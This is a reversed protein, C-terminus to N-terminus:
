QFFWYHFAAYRGSLTLRTRRATLLQGPIRLVQEDWGPSPRFTWRIAPHDDVRVLITAEPIEITVRERSAPWLISATVPSATRLVVTLDAGPETTIRFREEGLIARGADILADGTDVTPAERRVMGWLDQHGLKSTFSYEHDAEDRTDCVNLRDVERLGAVAQHASRLQHNPGILPRRLRFIFLPDGPLDSHYIPEGDVLAAHLTPAAAQQSASTILYAPQESEPLRRLTEILNAEREAMRSGFFAPSTVGHLNLARHGTLYEIGTATNAMLVGPPLNKVIWSAAHVDRHFLYGAADGYAAAMRSTSLLGLALWLGAGVRLLARSRGAEPGASGGHAWGLGAAALVLLTPLAWMLYRNYHVGLYINPSFAAVAVAVTVGWLRLPSRVAEPAKALALLVFVLGLPPFYLSAWGRHFGVPAQSPYFGLLLGRIVDVGYESLIGLTDWLSYNAFLSKGSLSTGLWQGTVARNLGLLAVGVAPPLWVLLRGGRSVSRGPGLSWGAAVIGGVLLGEPRALALLTGALALGRPRPSSWEAVLRDLLWLALLMFVAVDSGYLYGWVVPGGLAVLSGAILAEEEGALRRALRGALVVSLVYLCAGALIAVAVLGEARAGLAHAVALLATWLLSTSGTSAPEGANYQFPHGDAMASAYQCIVYLDVVQPVFHGGTAALMLSIFATAVAVALLILARTRRIAM